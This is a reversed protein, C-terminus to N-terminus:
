SGLLFSSYSACLSRRTHSSPSYVPTYARRGGEQYTYEAQVGQGTCVTRPMCLVSAPHPIVTIGTLSFSLPDQLLFPAEEGRLIFWKGPLFRGLLACFGAVSLVAACPIDSLELGELLTTGGGELLVGAKRGTESNPSYEPGPGM